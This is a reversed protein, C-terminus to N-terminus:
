VDTPPNKLQNIVEQTQEQMALATEFGATVGRNYLGSLYAKTREISRAADSYKNTRPTLAINLKDMEDYVNFPPQDTPM